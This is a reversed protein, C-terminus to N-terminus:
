RSSSRQRRGAGVFFKRRFEFDADSIGSPLFRSFEQLLSSRLYDRWHAIDTDAWLRGVGTIFDPQRVVVRAFLEQRQTTRGAGWADFDFDEAMGRLESWSMLNSTATADQDRVADRHVAAIRRELEFVRVSMGAPDAFNAAAAIRELYARYADRHAAFGPKLYCQSDM